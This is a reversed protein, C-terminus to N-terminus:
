LCSVREAVSAVQRQQQVRRLAEFLWRERGWETGVVGALALRKHAGCVCRTNLSGYLEQTWGAEKVGPISEIPVPERQEAPLQFHELGQAKAPSLAFLSWAPGHLAPCPQAPSPQAEAESERQQLM